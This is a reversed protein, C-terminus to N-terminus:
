LGELAVKAQFGQVSNVTWNPSMFFGTHVKLM